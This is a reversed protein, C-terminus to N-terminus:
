IFISYIKFFVFFIKMNIEQIQNEKNEEIKKYRKLLNQTNINYVCSTKIRQNFQSLSEKKYNKRNIRKLCSSIM